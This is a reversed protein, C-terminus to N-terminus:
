ISDDFSDGSMLKDKTMLTDRLRLPGLSYKDLCQVTEQIATSFEDMLYSILVIM